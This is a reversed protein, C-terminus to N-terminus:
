NEPTKEAEYIKLYHSAEEPRGTSSYFVYLNYAALFSGRGIVHDDVLTNEGISRATLFYSEIMPILVEAHEPLNLAADICFDGCTFYFDPSSTYNAEEESILSFGESFKKEQKYSFLLRVVLDHRWIANRPCIRKAVEFFAISDQFKEQIALDKGLQYNFYADDPKKALEARLIKENRGVKQLNQLGLYGDHGLQIALRKTQFHHQPQEHIKGVYRVGRPLIRPLFFRSHQIQQLDGFQNDIEVLGVYDPFTSKLGRIEQQGATLWEDADVVINWDGSSIGLAFNRAYSFDNQWDIQQIVPHYQQAIQLTNDTSGTDLLVIEDVYEVFSSLCRDICRSENKVILVLSIKYM